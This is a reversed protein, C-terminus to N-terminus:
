WGCTELIKLARRQEFPPQSKVPIKTVLEGSFVLIIVHSVPFIVGKKFLFYM